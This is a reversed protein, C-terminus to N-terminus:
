AHLLRRLDNNGVDIDRARYCDILLYFYDGKSLHCPTLKRLKQITNIQTIRLRHAM